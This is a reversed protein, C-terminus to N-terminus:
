HRLARAREKRGRRASEVSHWSGTDISVILDTAQAKRLSSSFASDALTGVDNHDFPSLSGHHENPERVPLYDQYQEAPQTANGTEEFDKRFMQPNPLFGEKCNGLDRLPAAASVTGVLARAM